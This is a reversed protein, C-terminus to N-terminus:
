QSFAITQDKKSRFDPSNIKKLQLKAFVQGNIVPFDALIVSSFRFQRGDVALGDGYNDFCWVGRWRVGIEVHVGSGESPGLLGM